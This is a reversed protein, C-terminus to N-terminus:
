CCRQYATVLDVLKDTQDPRLTSRRRRVLVREQRARCFPYGVYTCLGNLYYSARVIIRGSVTGHRALFSPTGHGEDRTLRTVLGEICRAM